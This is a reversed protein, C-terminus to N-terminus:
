SNRPLPAAPGSARLMPVLAYARILVGGLCSGAALVYPVCTPSAGGGLLAVCGLLGLLADVCRLATVIVQRGRAAALSQYPTVAASSAAYLAWGFVATASVGFSGGTVVPAAWPLLLTGVAGAALCGGGLILVARDARRVLGALPATPRAAYSSFLYTSVGQVALLAPSMYVRAAELQGLAVRGAASYVVSRVATLVTPRIAQQTSRWFGYGGVVAMAAPGAIPFRREAASLHAVGVLAAVLQGIGVVGVFATLHLSGVAAWVALAVLTAVTGLVEMTVSPWFLMAAQLLRRLASEVVFVASSVAFVVAQAPTLAGTVVLFAAGTASGVVATLLCWRVLAARIRGDARDLATLSDGVLGNVAAALVLLVSYVVAFSGLGGAGLVRAALVQLAFSGAATCFKSLVAAVPRSRRRAMAGARLCSSTVKDVATTM